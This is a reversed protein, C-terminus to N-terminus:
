RVKSLNQQTFIGDAIGRNVRLNTLELATSKRNQVNEVQILKHIWKHKAPDVEELKSKRIKKLLKGDLGFYEGYPSLFRDKSVWVLSKSYGTRERVSDSAPTAELVFCQTSGLAQGDDGPCAEERVVKSQYDDVHPTAIDAYSFASGMFSGSQQQVEVRRVKQYAPLYILVENQDKERELFLIGEGKIEAPAHFRTLTKFRTGDEQLKRQWTFKKVKTAGGEGVVTLVADATTDNLSQAEELKLLVERGSTVAHAAFAAFVVSVVFARKM